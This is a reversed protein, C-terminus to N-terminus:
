RAMGESQIRKQIQDLLPKLSEESFEGPSKVVQYHRSTEYFEKADNLPETIYLTSLPRPKTRGDVITKELENLKERVWPEKAHGYFIIAVDCESLNRKHDEINQKTNKVGREMVPWTVKYRTGLYRHLPRVADQDKKDFILYISAPDAHGNDKLDENDPVPQTKLSKLKELVYTKLSALKTNGLLLEADKQFRARTRLTNIFRQQAPEQTRLGLPTWVVRFFDSSSQRELALAHQLYVVDRKQGAPIFGTEGGILHISLRSKKLNDRVVATFKPGDTPLPKDPLVHYNHTELEAKIEDRAAKLDAITEALYVTRPFPDPSQCLEVFKSIDWALVELERVFEKFGYLGFIHSYERPMGNSLEDYFQYGPLDRLAQYEPLDKWAEPDEDKNIPTKIVKFIRSKNNIHIKGEEAARRYFETLEPICWKSTLYSPSLISVLLAVRQLKFVLTDELVGHGPMRVKDRWIEPDTGTLQRLRVGLKEHLADIWGRDKDDKPEKNDAHSYSIFIDNEYQPSFISM